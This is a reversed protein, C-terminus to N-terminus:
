SRLMLVGAASAITLGGPAPVAVDSVADIEIHGTQGPALSLRVYSIESLGLAGIDVGAGGGSGKYGNILGAFDSGHWDFSPDVPRTFDTLVSGAPGGYPDSLDQYGITPFLGDAAVGNVVHWATGDSSVEIRGGGSVLNTAVPAFTPDTFFSNGFVLLDIGYPNAADNRVPEDFSLVLSGGVGISVIEGDGFSPNFPTVAGPFSGFPSTVGTYRTPSGLASSADPYNVDASSGAAFSVVHDAWPNAGLSSACACGSVAIVASVVRERMELRERRIAASCGSERPVIGLRGRTCHVFSGFRAVLFSM